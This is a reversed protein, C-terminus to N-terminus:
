SIFVNNLDSNLLFTSVRIVPVVIAWAMGTAIVGIRVRKYVGSSKPTNAKNMPMVERSPFIEHPLYSNAIKSGWSSRSAIFTAASPIRIDSHKVIMSINDAINKFEYIIFKNPIGSILKQIYKIGKTTKVVPKYLTRFYRLM